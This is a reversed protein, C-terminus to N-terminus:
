LGETFEPNYDSFAEYIREVLEPCADSLQMTVLNQNPWAKSINSNRNELVEALETNYGTPM